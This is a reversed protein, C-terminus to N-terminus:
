GGAAARAAWFGSAYLQVADAHDENMHAVISPSRRGRPHMRAPECRVDEGAVWHIRGFGAVLHAREITM